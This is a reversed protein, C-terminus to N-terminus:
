LSRGGALSPSRTFSSSPPRRIASTAFQPCEGSARSRAKGPLPAAVEPPDGPRVRMPHDDYNEEETPKVDDAMCERYELAGHDLWVKGAKRALRRYAEISRKPVPIVFGDVYNAM